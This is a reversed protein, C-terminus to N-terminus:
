SFSSKLVENRLKLTCSNHVLFEQPVLERRQFRKFSTLQIQSKSKLLLLIRACFIKMITRDYDGYDGSEFYINCRIPVNCLVVAYYLSPTKSYKPHRLNLFCLYLSDSSLNILAILLNGIPVEQSKLRKRRLMRRGFTPQLRRRGLRGWDSRSLLRPRTMKATGRHQM